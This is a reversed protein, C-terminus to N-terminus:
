STPGGWVYVCVWVWHAHIGQTPVCMVRHLGRVAAAQLSCRSQFVGGVQVTEVAALVM